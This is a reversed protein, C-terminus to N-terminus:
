RGLLDILALPVDTTVEHVGVAVCLALDQPEDVTWVRVLLGDRLWGDVADPDARLLDLGPGVGGITREDLMRRGVEVLRVLETRLPEPVPGGLLEQVAVLPELSEVLLMLREGPVSAALHELSGPHFSMLSVLVDGVRGTSPDWGARRLVELVADEAAWGYPAPHKLEIALRLERGASVALEVLEALTLLQGDGHGPADPPVRLDLRRLDALDLADVPGSGDSTRDLGADHWCVPIGDASLRIDCELGDAGDAVAQLYAARTHEPWRRSAGRHAIVRPRTM